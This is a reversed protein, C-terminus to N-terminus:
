LWKLKFLMADYRNRFCAVDGARTVGDLIRNENYRVNWRWKGASISMIRTGFHENMWDMYPRTVKQDSDLSFPGTWTENYPIFLEVAWGSM